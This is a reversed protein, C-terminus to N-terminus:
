QNKNLHYFCLVNNSDAITPISFCSNKTISMAAAIASSSVLRLRCLIFVNHLLRSEEVVPINKVIIFILFVILYQSSPLNLVIQKPLWKIRKLNYKPRKPEFCIANY